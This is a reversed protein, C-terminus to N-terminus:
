LNLQKKGSYFANFVSDMSYGVWLGDITKIKRDHWQVENQDVQYCASSHIYKVSWLATISFYHQM